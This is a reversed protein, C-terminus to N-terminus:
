AKLARLVSPEVYARFRFGRHANLFFAHKPKLVNRCVPWGDGGKLALNEM